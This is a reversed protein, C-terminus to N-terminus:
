LVGNSLAKQFRVLGEFFGQLVRTSLVFILDIIPILHTM